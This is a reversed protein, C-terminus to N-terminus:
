KARSEEIQAIHCALDGALRANSEALAINSEVSKGKTIENLRSLLWPTLAKGKIGIQKAERLAEDIAANIEKEDLAFAEPIPNAILVGVGPHIRWHAMCVRALQEVDNLVYSLKLGSKRTYFAPFEDTGFGLM